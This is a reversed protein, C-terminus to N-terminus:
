QQSKGNSVTGIGATAYQPRTQLFYIINDLRSSKSNLTPNLPQRLNPVRRGEAFQSALPLVMVIDDRQKEHPNPDLQGNGHKM